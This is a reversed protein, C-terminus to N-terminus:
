ACRETPRAAAVVVSVTTGAGRESAIAVTGGMAHVLERVIALGLGFGDGDADTSRYFRDLARESEVASMGPGDDAVDIRIRGDAHRVRLAVRADPAHKVANATLNELAQLLLGPHAWAAVDPCCADVEVDALELTELIEDLLPLVPVPELRIPEARTQARALTLLAHALRTLRQTQREVVGLFRDRDGPREKAGLQLAEVASAIAALPTRLEHAANTVFEREARERREIDTVDTVVVVAARTPTPPPLLAVVYMRDPTVEVRLTQAVAVPEFLDQLAQVLSFRPWPDVLARGPVVNPGLLSRARPNAFEVVLARDVAVVGEDLQELVLRLRNREDELTQFSDRLRDRMSDITGVLLGLEDPFRSELPQDFRGDAIAQAANSIRRLRRTILIATALGALAGVAVALLAARVIEARVITLADELEGRPAVAVLAGADAGRLPLAVTVLRPDDDTTAVLRRGSLAAERLEDLNPLEAVAVGHARDRTLLRGADDFVFLAMRRTVGLRTTEAQIGERDVAGLELAATLARGAALERAREDIRAESRAIFRETVALATLAAISAFALALWWRMSLVARAVPPTHPERRRIGYPFRCVM